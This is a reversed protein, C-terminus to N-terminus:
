MVAKKYGRTDVKSYDTTEARSAVKKEAWQVVM